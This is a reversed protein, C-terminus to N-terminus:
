NCVFCLFITVAAHYFGYAFWSWFVKMGFQGDVMGLRYLVPETLLVQKPHQLDMLAYWFIPGSTYVINYLQWIWAEYM